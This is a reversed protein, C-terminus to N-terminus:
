NKTVQKERAGNYKLLAVLNVQKNRKCQALAKDLTEQDLNDKELKIIRVITKADDHVLALEFERNTELKKNMKQQHEEHTKEHLSSLWPILPSSILLIAISLMTSM